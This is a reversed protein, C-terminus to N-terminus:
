DCSRYVCRGYGQYLPRREEGAPAIGSPPIYSERDNSLMEVANTVPIGLTTALSEAERLAAQEEAPLPQRTGRRKKPVKVRRLLIDKNLWAALKNSNVLEGDPRTSLTGDPGPPAQRM